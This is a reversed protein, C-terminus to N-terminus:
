IGYFCLAPITPRRPRNVNLHWIPIEFSRGRGQYFLRFIWGRWEHDEAMEEKGRNSSVPEIV